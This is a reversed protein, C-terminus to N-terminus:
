NETLKSPNSVDFILVKAAYDNSQFSLSKEATKKGDIYFEYKATLPTSNETLNAAITAISFTSVPMSTKISQSSSSIPSMEAQHTISADKLISPTSTIGDFRFSNNLGGDISAVQLGFNVGYTAYNSGFTIRLEVAKKRMSNDIDNKDDKKCSINMVVFLCLIGFITNRMM